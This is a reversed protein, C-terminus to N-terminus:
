GYVPFRRCIKVVEARAREVASTSRLRGAVLRVRASRPQRESSCARASNGPTSACQSRPPKSALATVDRTTFKESAASPM